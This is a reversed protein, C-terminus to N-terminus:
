GGEQVNEFNRENTRHQEPSVLSSGIVTQKSCVNYKVAMMASLKGCPPSGM